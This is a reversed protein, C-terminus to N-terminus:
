LERGHCRPRVQSPIQGGRNGHRGHLARPRAAMDAGLVTSDVASNRTGRGRFIWGIGRVPDYPIGGLGHLYIYGLRAQATKFGMKAAVVLHPYARAYDRRRFHKAGQEQAQYTDEIQLLSPVPLREARVVVEEVDEPNAVEAGPTAPEALVMATPVAVLILTVVINKMYMERGRGMAAAVRLADDEGRRRLVVRFVEYVSVTPVVVRSEDALPEAFVDANAGDTFFEIWGSSDVLNSHDVGNRSSM